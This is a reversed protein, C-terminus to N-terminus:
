IWNIADNVPKLQLVLYTLLTAVLFVFLPLPTPAFCILHPLHLLYCSCYVEESPSVGVRCVNSIVRLADSVRLSAALGCVLLTYTNM